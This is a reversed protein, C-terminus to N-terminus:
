NEREKKREKNWDLSQQQTAAVVRIYYMESKM